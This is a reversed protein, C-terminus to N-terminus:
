ESVVVDKSKNRYKAWRTYKSVTETSPTPVTDPVAFEQRISEVTKGSCLLKRGEASIYNALLNEISGYKEARADFVKPAVSVQKGTVTCTLKNKNLTM